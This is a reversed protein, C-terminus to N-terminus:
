PNSENSDTSATADTSSANDSTDTNDDDDDNIPVLQGNDDLTYDRISKNPSIQVHVSKGNLISQSAKNAAITLPSNPAPAIQHLNKVIAKYDNELKSNKDTGYALIFEANQARTFAVYYMRKDEEDINADKYMVVTNPFELGKAGHITSFVFDAAAVISAQKNEENRASALRQRISNTRIEFDLLSQKINELLEAQTITGNTYSAQWESIKTKYAASWDGVQKQARVLNKQADGRTLIFPVKNYIEQVLVSYINATPAFTLMAWYKKIFTSFLTNDYSKESIINACTANPYMKRVASMMNFVDQRTYALFCVQEKNALKDDLFPKVRLSMLVGVANADIFGLKQVHEYHFNVKELFSAETVKALSNAQLQIKAYQNAEINNLLTNAFDLIEQNSRYNVQLKYPTFIGSGELVNLAKPNSARFEYLTQSCDGVIFLSEKHKDVYKLTYIFEFISNDQVEDIILYKSQIETPEALVDIKQYCIIIELELCTQKVTDLIRIVDDYNAEVFNNMRTFCDKDNNHVSILRNKFDHEVQGAVSQPFYIDIANMLTSVSSLEHTPFNLEYISHVMKAITMSQITPVKATIHDAAANTFSLVTIDKDNVGAARMYDIRGQIVTSKGTGAGAQVLVLPELTQIAARQEQSFPVISQPLVINPNFPVTQLQNAKKATDLNALTDSLLLNLNQKCLATVDDQSFHAKLTSYISKYLDLPINYDEIYRLQRVISNSGSQFMNFFIDLIKDMKTNWLEAQQIVGDYLSYNAIFDNIAKNDLTMNSKNPISALHYNLMYLPNVSLETWFTDSKLAAPRVAALESANANDNICFVFLRYVIENKQTRTSIKSLNGPAFTTSVIDEITISSPTMAVYLSNTGGSITRITGIKKLNSVDPTPIKNILSWGDGYLPDIPIYTITSNGNTLSTRYGNNQTGLTANMTKNAPIYVPNKSECLFGSKKGCGTLMKHFFKPSYTTKAVAQIQKQDDLILPM